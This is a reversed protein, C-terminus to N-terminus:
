QESFGISSIVIVSERTRDFRLRVVRLKASDLGNFAALPAAVTQFVPESKKKYGEDDIMQLKTFRVKLPPPVYGFKTLPLASKSGDASQLEITFDPAERDKKKSKDEEKKKDKSAEDADPPDEDVAAVSLNLVSRANLGAGGEPLTIEYMPAAGGAKNKWGLFVGNYDRDGQRFPIRAERWMTLGSAAIRAGDLTATSVDPDENFSALSRYSADAFRNIYTADPLWNRASRHDRFLPLYDRKDHLTSELFASIYVKAIQRQDEAPMLPKLNLFWAFPGRGADSRGWVTNFQGHNARYIWLESKFEPGPRTFQVRDFQRSGVFSSVDADWGGQITFYSVDRVPRHQGAPKYQGDAPAIAVVSRIPFGYDFRITADDPYFALRNFFAATTAAEGGRSHGMLAIRNFDVRGHFPNGPASNWERWLKLHELLMWGRVAQQKPPDHFLGSNLFNEDVSALIFGRSALLEGLYAYGPDSFETMGHNGHVILALPFPGPGDPYWVRANLPLKDMDFGWYMRRLNRKWGKFDKFFKSADVTRTKLSVGSRFEPRRQDTGSGYTVTKVAFPGKEAPNAAAIAAPQPSGSQAKTIQDLTGDGAFFTAFLVNGAIALVLLALTVIKKALSSNRYAGTLLTALTAGLTAEVLGIALGTPVGLEPPGFLLAIVLVCGFMIGGRKRPIKRLITVVLALALASLTVILAAAIFSFAFDVWLGWGLEIYYGAIAAGLAATIACAWAAGRYAEPGPRIAAWARSCRDRVTHWLRRPLARAPQPTMVNAM